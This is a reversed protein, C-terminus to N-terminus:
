RSHQGFFDFIYEQALNIVPGHGVGPLEVYESVIGLEKM